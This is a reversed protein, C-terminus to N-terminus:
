GDTSAGFLVWFLINFWIIFGGRIKMLELKLSSMHLQHSCMELRYFCMERIKYVVILLIIIAKLRCM